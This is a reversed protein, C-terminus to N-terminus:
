FQKKFHFLVVILILLLECISYKSILKLCFLYACASYLILVITIGKLEAYSAVDCKQFIINSKFIEQLEELYKESIEHIDCVLM